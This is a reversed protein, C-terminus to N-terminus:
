QNTSPPVRKRPKKPNVRLLGQLGNNPEFKRALRLWYADNAGISQVVNQLDAVAPYPTSYAFMNLITEELRLRVSTKTRTKKKM